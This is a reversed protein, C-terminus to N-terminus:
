AEHGRPPNFIPRKPGKDAGKLRPRLCPRIPPCSTCATGNKPIAGTAINYAAYCRTTSGWIPAISHNQKQSMVRLLLLAGLAHRTPQMWAWPESYLLNDTLFVSQRLHTFAEEYNGKRVQAM